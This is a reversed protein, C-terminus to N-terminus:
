NRESRRNRGRWALGLGALGLLLCSSPEPIVIEEVGSGTLGPTTESLARNLGPAPLSAVGVFTLEGAAIPRDVGDGGVSSDVIDAVGLRSGLLILTAVCLFTRM